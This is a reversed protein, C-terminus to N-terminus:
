LGRATAITRSSLLSFFYMWDDLGHSHPFGSPNGFLTPLTSLRCWPKGHKGFEAMEMAQKKGPSRSARPVGGLGIRRV